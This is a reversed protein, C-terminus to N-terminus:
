SKKFISRMLNKLSSQDLVRQSFLVLNFNIWHFHETSPATGNHARIIKGVMSLYGFVSIKPCSLTHKSVPTEWFYKLSHCVWFILEDTNILGDKNRDMDNKFQRLEIKSFLSFSMDEPKQYWDEMYEKLSLQGDNDQDM